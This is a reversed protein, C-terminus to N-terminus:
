PRSKASTRIATGSPVASPSAGRSSAIGARRRRSRGSPPRRTARAAARWRGRPRRGRRAAAARPTPSASRRRRRGSPPRCARVVQEAACGRRQPASPALAARDRADPPWRRWGGGGLRTARPGRAAGRRGDAADRHGQVHAARGGARDAGQAGLAERPDRRPDRARPRGQAPANRRRDECRHGEGGAPRRVPRRAPRHLGAGAGPRDRLDGSRTPGSRTRGRRARQLLVHVADNACQFM